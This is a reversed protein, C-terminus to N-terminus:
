SLEQAQLTFAEPRDLNEHGKQFKSRVGFKKGGITCVVPIEGTCELTIESFETEHFNRKMSRLTLPSRM